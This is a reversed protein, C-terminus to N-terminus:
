SFQASHEFIRFMDGKFCHIQHFIYREALENISNLPKNDKKVIVQLGLNKNM